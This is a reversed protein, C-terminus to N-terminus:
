RFDASVTPDIGPRCPKVIIKGSANVFIIMSKWRRDLKATMAADCNVLNTPVLLSKLDSPDCHDYLWQRVKYITAGPPNPIAEFQVPRLYDVGYTEIHLDAKTAPGKGTRVAAYLQRDTRAFFGGPGATVEDFQPETLQEGTANIFCWKEGVQAAAVGSVFDSLGQYEGPFRREGDTGIYHFKRNDAQVWALGGHFEGASLYRPPIASAGDLKIYGMLRNEGDSKSVAALGESFRRAVSFSAEIVRNGTRDIYFHQGELRVAARNQAFRGAWDFRPLIEFGGQLGIYGFKEGERVAALGESFAEAQLFRRPIVENGSRDIYGFRGERKIPALGASFPGAEEFQYGIVVDESRESQLYGWGGDSFAAVPFPRPDAPVQPQAMASRLCCVSTVLVLLQGDIRSM